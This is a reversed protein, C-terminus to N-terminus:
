LDAVDFKLPALDNAVDEDTVGHAPLYLRGGRPGCASLRDM